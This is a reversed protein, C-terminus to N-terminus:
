NAQQNYCNAAEQAKLKQHMKQQSRMRELQDRKHNREVLMARLQEDLAANRNIEQQIYRTSFTNFVQGVCDPHLVQKESELAKNGKVPFIAGKIHPQNLIPHKGAPIQREIVLFHQSDLPKGDKLLKEYKINDIIWAKFEIKSYGKADSPYEMREVASVIKFNMGQLSVSTLFAFLVVVSKNM